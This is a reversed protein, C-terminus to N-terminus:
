KSCSLLRVVAVIHSVMIMKCQYWILWNILIVVQM